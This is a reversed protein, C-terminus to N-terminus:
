GQERHGRRRALEARAPRAKLLAEVDARMADEFRRQASADDSRELKVIDSSRVIDFVEHTYPEVPGVVLPPICKREFPAWRPRGWFLERGFDDLAQPQGEADLPIPEGHATALPYVGLNQTSAAYAFLTDWQTSWGLQVAVM